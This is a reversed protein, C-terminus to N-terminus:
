PARLAIHAACSQGSEKSADAVERTRSHTKVAARQTISALPPQADLLERLAILAALAVRPPQGDFRLRACFVEDLMWAPLTLQVANQRVRVLLSSPGFSRARRLVEVEEGHFPHYCYRITM